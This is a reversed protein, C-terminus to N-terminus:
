SLNTLSDLHQEANGSACLACRVEIAKQYIARTHTVGYIEAARKIYINFMLHREEAEVAQTSREYVAMAHRALGYEEELKAYLLYIAPFRFLGFYLEVSSYVRIGRAFAFLGLISSRAKSKAFKPPCGDLAQEFLDRARELKKGGYRDIFKTLYTNWIDYM